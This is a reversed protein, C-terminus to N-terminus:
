GISRRIPKVDYGREPLEKRRRYTSYIVPIVVPDVILMCVEVERYIM